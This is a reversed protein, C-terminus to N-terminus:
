NNGAKPKTKQWKAQQIAKTKQWTACKSHQNPKREVDMQEVIDYKAKSNQKKKLKQTQSRLM